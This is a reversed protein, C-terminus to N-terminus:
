QLQFEKNNLVTNKSLILQKYKTPEELIRKEAEDISYRVLNNIIRMGVESEEIKDLIAEIYSDDLVLNIHFQRQYRQRKKVFDSIKSRLLIDKKTERSLDSYGLITSIRTLEERSFYGKDVLKERIIKEDHLFSIEEKSTGFGMKKNKELILEFVGAFVKNTMCTHFTFM